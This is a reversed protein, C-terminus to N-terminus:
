VEAEEKESTRKRFAAAGLGILGPLLAPTPISTPNRLTVDGTFTIEYEGTGLNGLASTNRGTIANEQSYGYQSIAVTYSGPNLLRSLYSDRPSTSGDGLTDGSDDNEAIFDDVDLSGDVRFLYIQSDLSSLGNGFNIDFARVDIAVTNATNVLFDIYDVEFDANTGQISDRVVTAAEVSAMSSLGVAVAGVVATGMTKINLM